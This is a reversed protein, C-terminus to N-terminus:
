FRTIYNLYYANEHRQGPVARTNFSNFTLGEKKQTPSLASTSVNENCFFIADIVNVVYITLLLISLNEARHATESSEEFMRSANVYGLIIPGAADRYGWMYNTHNIYDARQKTYVNQTHWLYLATGYFSFFFLPAEIKKEFDYQTWGPVFASKLLNFRGIRFYGKRKPSGSGSEADIFDEIDIAKEQDTKSSFDISVLSPVNHNELINKHKSLNKYGVSSEKKTTCDESKCLSEAKLITLQISLLFLFGFLYYKM